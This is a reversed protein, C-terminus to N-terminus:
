GRALRWCTSGRASIPWRASGDGTSRRSSTATKSATTRRARPISPPSSRVRPNAPAPNTGSIGLWGHLVKGDAVLETAVQRVFEGPLFVAGDGVSPVGGATSSGSSPATMSWSSRGRRCSARPRPRSWASWARDPAPRWRTARRTSPRTGGCRSRRVPRSRPSRWRSPAADRAPGRELRRLAAVPLSAQVRVVGVDSHPDIAVLERGRAQRVRHDRDRKRAGALLTANTAILGGPAVVVGCGYADSGSSEVELRVISRTTSPRPPASLRVPTSPGSQSSLMLGGSVLAAAAGTRVVLTTVWAARRGPATTRVTPAVYPPRRGALPGTESPHRWARQDPPVWGRLHYDKLQDGSEGEGEEPEGTGQDFSGGDSSAVVSWTVSAKAASSTAGARRGHDLHRAVQRDVQARRVGQDVGLTLADDQVLRRDDGVVGAAALHQGDAGLRPLHDAAGGAVDHGHAREALPRDGVEVDGLAHQPHQQVAAAHRTILRGRTSM